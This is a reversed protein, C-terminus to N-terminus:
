WRLQYDRGPGTLSFPRFAAAADRSAPRNELRRAPGGPNKLWRKNGKQQRDRQNKRPLQGHRRTRIWSFCGEQRNKKRPSAMGFFAPFFYHCSGGESTVFKQKYRQRMVRMAIKLVPLRAGSIPAASARRM